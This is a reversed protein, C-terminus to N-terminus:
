NSTIWPPCEVTASTLDLEWLAGGDEREQARRFGHTAYFDKAPANKKTPLFWGRITRAGAARAEAIVRALIVTEVTRGIVRCSLLFTDIEWASGDLEARSLVVGVLGNDGFRDRV